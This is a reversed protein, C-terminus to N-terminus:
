ALLGRLHQGGDVFLTQGTVFRSQLLFLVAAAVDAPGGHRKLPLSEALRDLHEPGLGEPSLIAGPAVANVRVSPALEIALLKTIRHLADKSLQYAVRDPDVGTIRTDVVNVVAGEVEQRALAHALILPAWANIRLTEELDPLELEHLRGRPFVSANNILITIPGGAARVAEDFLASPSHPVALDTQVLSCVGRHARIEQAILAAEQKSEKYHVVVDAGAEALALVVARGIRRAGGTVLARQGALVGKTADPTTM